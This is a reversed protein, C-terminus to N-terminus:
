GSRARHWAQLCVNNCLINSYVVMGHMVHAGGHWEEGREWGAHMLMDQVEGRSEEDCEHLGVALLRVAVALVRAGLSTGLMGSALTHVGPARWLV